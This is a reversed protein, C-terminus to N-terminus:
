TAIAARGIESVRKALTTPDLAELPLAVLADVHRDVLALAERFARRREADTGEVGAPDPMGWHALAPHGPLVPCAERAHDCVTIVLDWERGGCDDVTRPAHGRWEIGADRLVELALPHVRAAPGAGASDAVFRGFGRANLVAEAIQSRASNGTCLFLVRLPEPTSLSRRMAVASAPCAGRLEESAGLAQALAAREVRRFGLRPFWGEATTTLLYACRVGAHRANELVHEVLARGLGTGREGQAVAVSRLLGTEGYRELGAVGVLATGREAVVFWELTPPVGALPLGAVRLLAAVADYDGPAAARLRPATM